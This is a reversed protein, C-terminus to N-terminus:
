MGEFWYITSIRVLFSKLYLKSEQMLLNPRISMLKGVELAINFNTPKNHTSLELIGKYKNTVM